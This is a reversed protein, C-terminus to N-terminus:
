YYGKAKQDIPDEIVELYQQWPMAIWTETQLQTQLPTMEIQADVIKHGLM